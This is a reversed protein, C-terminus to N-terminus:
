ASTSLWVLFYKTKPCLRCLMDVNRKSHFFFKSVKKIKWNSIKLIQYSFELNKKLNFGERDSDNLVKNKIQLDVAVDVYIYRWSGVDQMIYKLIQKVLSRCHLKQEGTEMSLSFLIPLSIQFRCLDVKNCTQRCKGAAYLIYSWLDTQM